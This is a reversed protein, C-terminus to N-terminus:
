AQVEGGRSDPVIRGARRLAPTLARRVAALTPAVGEEAPVVLVRSPENRALALFGERVRSLFALGEAEMRDPAGGKTARALGVAPDVDLVITLDPECGQCVNQRLWDIWERPLNRGYGQYAATSDFFRDGIVLAGRQRAPEIREVVLQRRAVGFLLLESLPDVPSATHLLLTRAADGLETGGPDRVAVVDDGAAMFEDGLAAALTSKGCGEIGEITLFFGGM